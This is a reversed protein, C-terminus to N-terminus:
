EQPNIIQRLEWLGSDYSLVEEWSNGWGELLAASASGLEVEEGCFESAAEEWGRNHGVCMVCEVEDGVMKVLQEQLHEHTQGDLAAVTYLSSLYTTDVAKFNNHIAAMEDLTEKTRLSDSSLICGPVWGVKMLQSACDAAAAKGADTLPREHDRYAGGEHSAAHRMM